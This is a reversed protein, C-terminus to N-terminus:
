EVGLSVMDKISIFQKGLFSGSKIKKELLAFQINKTYNFFCYFANKNNNNNQKKSYTHSWWETYWMIDSFFTSILMCIQGTIDFNEIKKLKKHLTNELVFKRATTKEKM